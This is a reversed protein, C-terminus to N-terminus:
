APNREEFPQILSKIEKRTNNIIEIMEVLTKNQNNALNKLIKLSLLEDFVDSLSSHYTHKGNKIAQETDKRIILIYNLDDAYISVLPTLHAILQHISKNRM